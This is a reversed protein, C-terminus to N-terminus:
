ETEDHTWGLVEKARATTWFGRNGSFDGRIQANPYYRRALERSAIGQTTTPAVINFVQCGGIRESKEVSLRCARAVAEPNVWGWLQGVGADEWNAKHEEQVDKLPAVEHIRLCAINMGPFWHVFSRAQFEAEEKALAYSDTPRLPADEDLPFYDFYLPRNAFALGIANVSSAYCVRKIGVTGAAHFGNFAANVNNNHVESDAKDIPDPLAALHILADCGTFAKVTADYDNAIDVTRMETNPTNDPDQHTRDIQVTKHGAAACAAVTYRGVTGRAGTIAIKM